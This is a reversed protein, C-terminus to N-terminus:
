VKNECRARRICSDRVVLEPCVMERTGGGRVLPQRITSLLCETTKQMLVDVRQNVSTLRPEVYECVDLDDYGVISFDDPLVGGRAKIARMVGIAVRDNVALIATGRVCANQDLMRNGLVEGYEYDYHRHGRGYIHAVSARPVGLKKAAQWFGKWRQKGYAQSPDLGLLVFDRHGLGHLHEVSFRMAAARDVTVENCAIETEPDVWVLATNEARIRGFVPGSAELTAGIIVIGDVRMSIFHRLVEEELKAEGNTMEILTQFQHERLFRQLLASKQIVTPSEMEHFCLGIMGTEGKRLHRAHFNPVFGLRKIEDQVRKVTKPHVGSHGNLVRSITWRSLGLHEALASTSNAGVRPQHRVPVPRNQKIPVGNKLEFKANAFAFNPCGGHEALVV